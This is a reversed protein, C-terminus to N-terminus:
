YTAFDESFLQIVGQDCAKECVIKPINQANILYIVARLTWIRLKKQDTNEQGYKRTRIWDLYSFIRVLFLETNNSKERLPHCSLNKGFSQLLRLSKKWQLLVKFCFKLDLTIKSIEKLSVYIPITQFDKDFTLVWFRISM